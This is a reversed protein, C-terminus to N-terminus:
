ERSFLRRSLFATLDAISKRVAGSLSSGPSSKEPQLGVVVVRSRITEEIYRVLLTLPLRHTTLDEEAIEESPIISITGPPNTGSAADILIALDPAFARVKGTTNEPTIGGVIVRVARRLGDRSVSGAARQVAALKEAVLVGAGDDGRGTNGIGLIVVRRAPSIEEALETKWNDKM